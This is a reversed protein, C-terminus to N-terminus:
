PTQFIEAHAPKAASRTAAITVSAQLDVTVPPLCIETSCAQYRLKLPVQQSGQPASPLATLPIRLTVTGQYVNLPKKSFTFTHLEGKPYSVTGAKFGAPTEAHLDTAILYDESKERANVHFGPRIKFVVAVEFPVGRAAPESSVYVEPAVVERPSPVQTQVSAAACIIGVTFTSFVRGLHALWSKGPGGFERNASEPPMNLPHTEGCFKM